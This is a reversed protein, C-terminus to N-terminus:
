RVDAKTQAAAPKPEPAGVVYRKLYDAIIVDLQAGPQRSMQKAMDYLATATEDKVRLGLLKSM